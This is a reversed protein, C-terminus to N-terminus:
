GKRVMRSKGMNTNGEDRGHQFMLKAIKKTGTEDYDLEFLTKGFNLISKLETECDVDPKRLFKEALTEEPFYEKFAEANMARMSYGTIGTDLYKLINSLKENDSSFM